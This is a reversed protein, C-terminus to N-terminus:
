IPCDRRAPWEECRCSEPQAPASSIITLAETYPQPFRLVADSFRSERRRVPQSTDLNRKDRAEPTGEAVSIYSRVRIDKFGARAM